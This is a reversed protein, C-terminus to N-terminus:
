GAAARAQEEALLEEERERQASLERALTINGGAAGQDYKEEMKQRLSEAEAQLQEKRGANLKLKYHERWNMGKPPRHEEPLQGGEAVIRALDWMQEIEGPKLIGLQWMTLLHM